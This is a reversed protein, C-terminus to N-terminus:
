VRVPGKVALRVATEYPAPKIQPFYIRANQNTVITESRLGDVLSRAIRFNVPAFLVLWLSSIRPSLLPVPVIWRRLGMVRAARQLMDKFTMRESGIDVMLNESADLNRAAALYRIVDEVGIPQTCTRVWRPTTMVPLKHVLSRIIKFSASGAGIIIGARLWVTQICDPRSSLIEGTEIRSLLHRSATNKQGLGGLYIIRRVKEDICAALFNEASKRDLSEFDAKAAMSHILYYAVDVGQLARRLSTEDFTNGEFLEAKIQGAKPRFRSRDRVLLRLRIDQEKGLAGLLEGGIYGTAGTLLIKM